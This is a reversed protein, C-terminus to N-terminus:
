TPATIFVRADPVAAQVDHAAATAAAQATAVTPGEGGPFVGFVASGSGTLLAPAAGAERLVELARAAAPVEALVLPEFDNVALAAVGRWTALSVLELRVPEPAAPASAAAVRTEALRAYAAATAMGAAPAAVVVAAPPLAPLPLLREGRGWALALPGGALLFPVDSGLAAALRLLEAPGLPAAGGPARGAAALRDLARLVAAADSSGGGLGAGAPIRKVLHIACAPTVGARQCWLTAARHALNDEPAGLEAGEVRLMIGGPP